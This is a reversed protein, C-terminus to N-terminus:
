GNCIRCVDVTIACLSWLKDLEPRDKEHGPRGRGVQSGRTPTETDLWISSLSAIELAKCRSRCRRPACPLRGSLATKRAPRTCRRLRSDEDARRSTCENPRLKRAPQPGKLSRGDGGVPGRWDRCRWDALPRWPTGGGVQEPGIRGGRCRRDRPRISVRRRPKGAPPVPRAQSQCGPHFSPSRPYM